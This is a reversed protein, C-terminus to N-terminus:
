PIVYQVASTVLQVGTELWVCVAKHSVSSGAQWPWVGKTVLSENGYSVCLVSHKHLLKFSLCLGVLGCVLFLFGQYFHEVCAGTINTEQLGEECQGHRCTSHLSEKWSETPYFCAGPYCRQCISLVSFHQFSSSPSCTKQPPNTKQSM